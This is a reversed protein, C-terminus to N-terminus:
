PLTVGLAGFVNGIRNIITTTESGAFLLGVLNNNGNLVASGSDGGQSMAGALLQDTFLAVKNTGYSVQASVSVQEITGTTFGTTRGSKKINMGLEGEQVGSITGIQLIENIVDNSNLPRAIACDVKNETQQIRYPRLRTTSGVMESLMNLFSVLSGAIGCDSDEDEFGIPVFESLVAIQDQPNQGGDYPGPQLIIDGISAENSNALVHNNSLIYIENNKKVLCGLTGATILYHGISTGGPAPRFRGTPVQFARIIGTPRVDTPVDQIRPPIMDRDSL